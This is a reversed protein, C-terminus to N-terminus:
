LVATEESEATNKKEIGIVRAVGVVCGNKGIMRSRDYVGVQAGSGAIEDTVCAEITQFGVPYPIGLFKEWLVNVVIGCHDIRGLPHSRMFIIDGAKARHPRVIQNKKKFEEYGFSCSAFGKESTMRVLDVRGAKAFCWSVFMASYPNHNLGYWRGYPNDANEGETFGIQRDAIEILSSVFDSDEKRRFM